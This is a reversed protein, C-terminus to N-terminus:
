KLSNKRLFAKGNDILLRALFVSEKVDGDEPHERMRKMFMYKVTEPSIPANKLDLANGAMAGALFGMFYINCADKDTWIQSKCLDFLLNASSEEAYAPMVFIMLLILTLIIKRM